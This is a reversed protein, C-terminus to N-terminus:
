PKGAAKSMLNNMRELEEDTLNKLDVAALTIPGGGAGTHEQTLKDGYIKPLMKSLMWKRTDIQVRKHAIVDASLPMLVRKLVPQGKDDFHPKGETDLEQIMVWEHTKDSLQIIEDALLAYGIERAHAYDKGVGHPDQHVWDLFTAVAPMGPDKCISELSRGTKLESCVHASVVARDYKPQGGPKRKAAQPKHKDMGPIKAQRARM